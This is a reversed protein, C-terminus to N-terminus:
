WVLYICVQEHPYVMINCTKCMQGMNAWSNGSSWRRNCTGCKFEGFMRNPGQYPTELVILVFKICLIISCIYLKSM